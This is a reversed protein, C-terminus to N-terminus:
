WFRAVFQPGRDTCIFKPIGHLRVIDRVYLKAAQTATVIESCVILHTMRTAKDIVVMVSDFVHGCLPLDMIFEISVEFWKNIPITPSQLRGKSLTHDSKKTQCVPCSDVFNRM